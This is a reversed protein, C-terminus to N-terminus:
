ANSRATPGVSIMIMGVLLLKVGLLVGIAWAGSLPFESWIMLGLLISLVGGVLLWLWGASRHVQFAAAIEVVGDIVLYAALIITLVGSALIPDTVLALGCLLTLGGIAFMLLGKGFSGARFAWAMRVLGAALVLVGVLVVISLGTILPAAISLMGLILTVIGFLRMNRAGPSAAINIESM